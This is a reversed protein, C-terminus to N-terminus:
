KSFLLLTFAPFRIHNWAITVSNLRKIQKEKEREKEAKNIMEKM